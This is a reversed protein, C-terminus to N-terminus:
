SDRNEGRIEALLMEVAEDRGRHVSAVSERFSQSISAMTERHLEREAASEERLEKIEERWGRSDDRWAPMEHWLLRYLVAGVLVLAGGELLFELWVPLSTGALEASGQAAIAMVLAVADGRHLVHFTAGGLTM